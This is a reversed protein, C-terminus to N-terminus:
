ILCRNVLAAAKITLLRKKVSNTNLKLELIVVFIDESDTINIKHRNPYLIALRKKINSLGINGYINKDLSVNQDVPRNNSIKFVFRDGNVHASINIWAERELKSVGHKYANEVLPLLLLPVISHGKFNSGLDTNVELNDAYRIRELNVYQVIIDIEKQLDVRPTICEYLMYRLISSLGMVVSPADDAKSRTLAYLNNLTNFLFHPHIQAKLVSLQISQHRNRYALYIVATMSVLVLFVAFTYILIRNKKQLQFDKNVLQLRQDAISKEKLTTQYRIETEHVAKIISLKNLSDTYSTYRKLYNLAEPQNGLGEYIASGMKLCIQIDGTSMSQLAQNINRRFYREANTFQKLAAFNEAMALETHLRVDGPDDLVRYYPPIKHLQALSLSYQGKEFYLHSLYLYLKTLEFPDQQERMGDEVEALHLEALEYKGALVESLVLNLKAKNRHKAGMTESIRYAERAYYLSKEPERMDIFLNAIFQLYKQKKEANRNLSEVIKLATLISEAALKSEGKQKRVIAAAYFADARLEQDGLLKGLKLLEETAKLASDHVSKRFLIDFHHKHFMVQLRLGNKDSKAFALKRSKDLAITASDLKSQTLYQKVDSILLEIEPVEQGSGKLPEKAIAWDTFGAFFSFQILLWISNMVSLYM